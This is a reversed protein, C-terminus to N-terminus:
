TNVGLKLGDRPNDIRTGWEVDEVLLVSRAAVLVNYLVVGHDKVGGVALQQHVPFYLEIKASEPLVYM